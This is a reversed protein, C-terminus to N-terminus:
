HRNLIGHQWQQSQDRSKSGQSLFKGYAAPMALFLHIFSLLVCMTRRYSFWSSFFLQAILRLFAYIRNLFADIRSFYLSIQFSIYKTKHSVMLIITIVHKFLVKGKFCEKRIWWKMFRIVADIMADLNGPCINHWSTCTNIPQKRISDSLNTPVSVEGTMLFESQVMVSLDLGSQWNEQFHNLIIIVQNSHNKVDVEIVSGELKHCVQM